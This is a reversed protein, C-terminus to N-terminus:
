GSYQRFKNPAPPGITVEISAVTTRRRPTTRRCPVIPNLSLSFLVFLSKMAEVDEICMCIGIHQQVMHAAVCYALDM